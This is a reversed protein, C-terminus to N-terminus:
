LAHFVLYLAGLMFVLLIFHDGFGIGSNDPKRNRIRPTM